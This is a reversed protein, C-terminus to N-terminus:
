ANCALRGAFAARIRNKYSVLVNMKKDHRLKKLFFLSGFFILTRSISNTRLVLCLQIGTSDKFLLLRIYCGANVYTFRRNHYIFADTFMDGPSTENGSLRYLGVATRLIQRMQGTGLDRLAGDEVAGFTITLASLSRHKQFKEAM